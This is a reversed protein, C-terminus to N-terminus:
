LSRLELPNLLHMHSGTRARITRIRDIFKYEPELLERLQSCDQDSLGISARTQREHRGVLPLRLRRALAALDSEYEETFMVCSCRGIRDEAETPSYSRSFMFLQRLLHERPLQELFRSFGEAALAHEAEPVAFAMEPPDGQLLYSYYSIVREMPDRLITITFTKKPIAIEHAALHSWGYFYHGQELVNPQHAVFAYRGSITHHQRSAELRQQVLIPDENGLSLFSFHLSTGATKRVHYCYIRKFGGPLKYSRSLHQYRYDLWALRTPLEDLKARGSQGRLGSMDGHDPNHGPRHRPLYGHADVCSPVIVRTSNFM